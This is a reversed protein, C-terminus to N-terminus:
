ADFRQFILSTNIGGFAFNNSMVRQCEIPQVAGTLYQLPACNPDINNLNLTPMLWCERMMHLCAWAEIAGGAGLSHGLHGKCSSVPVRDQFVQYTAASEAVDGFQTATGHANIYDVDGASLGADDLALQMTIQMSASDPQTVHGGDSNTGFGIVEGYIEAGRALAHDLSELILTGAGEGIVLGDRDADFPSPTQTPMDNKTSASRFTDFVAAETPCLEEAGGAIMIDQRGSAIAEYAYGIAQSGSTCASSTPYVRGKVEFFVGLNVATTHSMMKIYTTATIRSLDRDTLMQAFERAADTSGTSSGYAIGVRGGQLIPDNLLGAMSLADRSAVTAMQSVRGMSRIKKRPYNGTLAFGDVPGGLQTNLGKIDAWEHMVRIGSRNNKVADSFGPWDSGLATVASLGTIVVRTM